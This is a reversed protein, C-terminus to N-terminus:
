LAHEIRQVQHEIAAQRQLAPPPAELCPTGASREAFDGQGVAQAVADLLDEQDMALGSEQKAVQGEAFADHLIGVQDGAHEGRDRIFDSSSSTISTPSNL